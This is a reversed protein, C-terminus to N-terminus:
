WTDNVWYEIKKVQGAKGKIYFINKKSSIKIPSGLSDYAKIESIFRGYEKYSYSGPIVRPMVFVANAEKIKPCLLTVKVKDDVVNELDITYKYKGQSFVSFVHAYVLILIAFFKYNM